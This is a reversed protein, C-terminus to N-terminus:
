RDIRLTNDLQLIFDAGYATAPTQYGTKYDGNMIREAILVSTMATLRYGSLTELTAIKENGKEDSVKGWLFSKGEMRREVSPGSPRGDIKSRLWKKMWGKSLIWNFYGSIKAGLIMKPNAAMYVEIEPIHTSRWATSVDGWPINLAKTRFAHFDIDIVKKGLPVEILKGGKRIVSGQGLGEIMTRATGRSLGGKSMSFALQLHTASPLRNKLHLALCDSPVVDFGAGPLITIGAVKAKEDYGALMEFVQYEGTIDTYHTRTQLCTEVVTRFTSQFPGACHIVVEGQEFLDKLASADDLDVVNFSYGTQESQQRLAKENRGALIVNLGKSQCESAILRGTYGYSGYLIVAPPKNM